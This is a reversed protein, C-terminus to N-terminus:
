AVAIAADAVHRRGLLRQSVGAPQDDQRGVVRGAEVGVREHGQRGGRRRAAGSGLAPAYVVSTVLFVVATLAVSLLELAAVAQRTSTELLQRKDYPHGRVRHHASEGLLLVTAVATALFAVCYAARDVSSLREAQGTRAAPRPGTDPWCCHM